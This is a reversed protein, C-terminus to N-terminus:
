MFVGLDLGMKRHRKDGENQDRTKSVIKCKDCTETPYFINLSPRLFNPPVHGLWM